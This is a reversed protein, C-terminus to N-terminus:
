ALVPYSARQAKREAAEISAYSNPGLRRVGEILLIRRADALRPDRVVARLARLIHAVDEETTDISTVLPLGPSLDTWGLTRLSATVEPEFRDLHAFSVTDIAAVDAGGEAILRASAAHSGTETLADFFSIGHALPAVAARLLNMGTNSDWQNVAARGGRFAALAERDDDRRVVLRSRHRVGECGPARYVPTALYRLRDKYETMMPYGCCQAILLTPDAWIDHLPRERELRAPVGSLGADRLHFAIASWLQDNAAQLEPRDYMGLSAVRM